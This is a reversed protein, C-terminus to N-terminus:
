LLSPNKNRIANIQKQTFSKSKIKIPKKKNKQSSNEHKSAENKVPLKPPNNIILHERKQQYELYQNHLPEVRSYVVENSECNLEVKSEQCEKAEVDLKEISRSKKFLVTEGVKNIFLSPENETSDQENNDNLIHPEFFDNEKSNKYNKDLSIGQGDFTSNYGYDFTKYTQIYYHEREDLETENCIEVQQFTFFSAGYTNWDTQMKVNHHENRKLANIHNRFRSGINKSQGIYTTFEKTYICYIGTRQKLNRCVSNLDKQSKFSKGTIPHKSQPSRPKKVTMAKIIRKRPSKLLKKKVFPSTQIRLKVKSYPYEEINEVKYIQAYIKASANIKELVWKFDLENIFGILSNGSAFVNAKNPNGKQARITCLQGKKYKAELISGNQDTNVFCWMMGQLFVDRKITSM